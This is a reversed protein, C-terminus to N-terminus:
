EKMRREMLKTVRRIIRQIRLQMSGRSTLGREAILEDLTHTQFILYQYTLRLDDDSLHKLAQEIDLVAVHLEEMMRANAKGDTRHVAHKQEMFPWPQSSPTMGFPVRDVAFQQKTNVAYTDPLDPSKGEL